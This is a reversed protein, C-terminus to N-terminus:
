FMEGHGDSFAALPSTNRLQGDADGAYCAVIYVDAHTSMSEADRISSDSADTVMAYDGGDVNPNGSYDKYTVRIVLTSNPLSNDEPRAGRYRDSDSWYTLPQSPHTERAHAERITETTPQTDM